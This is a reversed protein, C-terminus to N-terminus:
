DSAASRGVGLVDAYRVLRASTRAGLREMVAYKHFEATRSSIGLVSAIEKLSKGDALLALVQKQRRTLEFSASLGHARSDRVGVLRERLCPSLSRRGRLSRYIAQKLSGCSETKMLYACVGVEFARVAIRPDAHMTLIIIRRSADERLLRRSIELGNLVPMSLDVVVVDPDRCRVAEILAHGSVLGDLVDFDIALLRTLGELFLRHDDALLLRPRGAPEEVTDAARM